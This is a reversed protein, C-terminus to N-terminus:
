GSECQHHFVGNIFCFTFICPTGDGRLRPDLNRDSIQIGAHAPIVLLFLKTDYMILNKKSPSKFVRWRFITVM